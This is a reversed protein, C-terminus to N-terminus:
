GGEQPAPEIPIRVWAGDILRANDPWPVAARGVAEAEALLGATWADEGDVNPPTGVLHRRLHGIAAALAREAASAEVRGLDFGNVGVHGGPGKYRGQPFQPRAVIERAVETTVVDGGPLPEAM